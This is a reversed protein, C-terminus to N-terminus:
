TNFSMLPHADMLNVACAYRTYQSLPSTKILLDLLFYELRCYFTIM